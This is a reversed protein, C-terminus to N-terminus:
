PLARAIPLAALLVALALAAALVQGTEAASGPAPGGRALGAIGVGLALLAARAVVWGTLRSEGLGCGCPVGAASGRARRWVRLGYAAYALFLAATTAIVVDVIRGHTLSRALAKPLVGLPGSGASSGARGRDPDVLWALSVALACAGLAVEAAPIALLLPRGLAPPVLGHATMAARLQRRGVTHSAGSALLLVAAALLLSTTM